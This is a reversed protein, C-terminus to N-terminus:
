VVKALLGSEDDETQAVEDVLVSTLGNGANKRFKGPTEGVMRKFLVCMYEVYEFGTSDAIDKLPKDTQQLLRKIEVLQVRRIEAQPSRGIHRRLGRELVHRHMGVHELVNEVSIGRCANTRIYSLADSLRPDEFAQVGTSLRPVVAAPEVLTCPRVAFEAQMLHALAEAALYGARCSDLAISSLMPQAMECCPRDNNVGLVALDGPVSLGCLKAADLIQVARFDNCAMVAMPMRQSKLWTAILPVQESQWQPSYRCSNETELIASKKGMLSLGEIFGNRREVSWLANSFGCFGFNVYGRESLEEAGMHGVAVNDPRVQVVGPFIPGDTLDVLPLRREKCAQALSPSIHSCIVGDWHQGWLQESFGDLGTDDDVFVSWRGNVQQYKAIGRLM